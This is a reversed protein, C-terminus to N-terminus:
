VNGLPMPQLSLITSLIGTKYEDSGPKVGADRLTGHAHGPPIGSHLEQSNSPIGGFCIGLIGM